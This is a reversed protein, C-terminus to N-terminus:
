YRCCWSCPFSSFTLLPQAPDKLLADGPVHTGEQQQGGGSDCILVYVYTHIYISIHKKHVRLREGEVHPCIDELKPFGHECALHHVM